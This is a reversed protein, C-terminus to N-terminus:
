APSPLPAPDSGCGSWGSPPVVGSATVGEGSLALLPWSAPVPESDPGSPPAASGDPAPPVPPPGAPGTLAASVATRRGVDPLLKTLAGATLMSSIEYAKQAAEQQSFLRGRM